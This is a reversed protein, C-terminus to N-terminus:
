PDYTELASVLQDQFEAEIVPPPIDRVKNVFIRSRHRVLPQLSKILPRLKNPNRGSANWDNWMTLEQQARPSLKTAKRAFGEKELEPELDLAELAADVPNM